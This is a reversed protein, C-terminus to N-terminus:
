QRTDSALGHHDLSPLRAAVGALFWFYVNVPDLDLYPGKVANILNWVLFALIAASVARLRRDRLHLHAQFRQGVVTLVLALVLILGVIGLEVMAKVYWSEFGRALAGHGALAYRSGVTDIGSGLGTLTLSAAARAEDVFTSLYHRALYTANGLVPGGAAGLLLLAVWFALAPALLRSLRAGGPGRELFVILAVLIPVFLFAGRAGSLMAAALLLLWVARGIGYRRTGTLAGQWWAYTVAIMSITFIYYQAVFSFTSPIRRLEGGGAYGLSVFGQTAAGAANGYFHYVFDARGGYIFGAEVLGIVAPVIAVVSMLQLVRTLDSRREILHYGLLLMPMYFLWVKAGIAGVLHNPLAPNLAQVGVVIAVMALLVIPAGPFVVRRRTRLAWIAFGLYAPIVFFFDKLLVAIGTKTPYLALTPVGSFPLYLLLGYISWRWNSIGIGLAIAVAVVGFAEFAYGREIAIAAVLAAAGSSAPALRRVLGYLPRSTSHSEAVRSVPRQTLAESSMLSQAV